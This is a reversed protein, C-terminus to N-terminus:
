RWRVVQGATTVIADRMDGSARAGPWLIVGDLTVGAGVECGAGIVSRQVRAGEGIRASADILSANEGVSAQLMALQASAYDIPTGLELWTAADEFGVVTEGADIWHRYGQRVVCGEDPLSALARASLVHVGTFMLKRLPETTAPAGLLRRVRSRTDIEIAGFRDANADARLVMTALADQDRHAQLAGAIDAEFLVDGNVVVWTEPRGAAIWANKIGGATGLIKPEHVFRGRVHAPVHRELSARLREALHHTNFTISQAGVRVLHEISQAALPRNLVPVAPKPLEDTLPRLRTGLGAALIMAHM